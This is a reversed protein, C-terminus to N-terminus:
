RRTSASDYGPPRRARGGAPAQDSSKTFRWWPVGTANNAGTVQATYAGPTLTILLAADASDPLLDFAGVKKFTAAPDPSNNWGANSAVVFDQEEIKTHLELRPNALVEDGLGFQRLGPGIGRILLTRPTEGAIVFGAILTRTGTGAVSRASLNILRTSSAPPDADYVEVLAVGVAASTPTVQASFSGASLTYLLASDASAAPLEFAGVQTAAETLAAGGGWNDNTAIQANDANFLGLQPDALAGAVGFPALAPGIGRVLVQKTGAGRVAFGAILAEAGTGANTRVSLNILGGPAPGAIGTVRVIRDTDDVQSARPVTFYFARDRGEVLSFFGRSSRALLEPADATLMRFGSGDPRVTYAGGFGNGGGSTSGRTTGYFAGDSGQFFVDAPAREDTLNAGSFSHVVEFGTGDTNIRYVSGRSATGGSLTAGYLKGDRGQILSTPTFASPNTTRTFSALVQYGSGDTAIKFVVGGGITGAAANPSGVSACGYLFGDSAM